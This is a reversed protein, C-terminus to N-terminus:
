VFIFINNELGFFIKNETLCTVYYFYESIVFILHYVLFLFLMFINNKNRSLM